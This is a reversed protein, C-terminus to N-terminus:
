HEQGIGHWILHAKWSLSLWLSLSSFLNVILIRQQHVQDSLACLGSSIEPEFPLARRNQLSPWKSIYRLLVFSQRCHSFYNTARWLSTEGHHCRQDRQQDWVPTLQDATPTPPVQDRGQDSRQDTPSSPRELNTLASTPWHPFHKKASRLVWERDGPRFIITSIRKLGTHTHLSLLPLININQM